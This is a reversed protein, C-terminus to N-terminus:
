KKVLSVKKGLIVLKLLVMTKAILLLFNNGIHYSGDNMCIIQRNKEMRKIRREIIENTNYRCLIEKFSLGEKANLLERLLRIRIATEGLNIFAFYLFGLCFYIIFNVASIAIVNSLAAGGSLFIWVEIVLILFCGSIFGAYESKLLGLRPIIKYFSIQTLANFLLAIIPVSLQLYGIHM